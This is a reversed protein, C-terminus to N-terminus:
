VGTALTDIPTIEYWRIWIGPRTERCHTTRTVAVSDPYGTYGTSVEGCDAPKNNVDLLMDCAVMGVTLLVALILKM